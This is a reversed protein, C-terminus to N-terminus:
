LNEIAAIVQLRRADWDGSIREFPVGARVLMEEAVAAFRTRREAPGFFRTGDCVWPVDPSFLLYREARAYGMLVEPVEGFLMQAWAATMLSDTDLILLPPDSAAAARMAADQGEAIALLDAMTLDTGREECYARGYERVVPWGFEAHLKRALESKGTSEAGHFCIRRVGARGGAPKSTPM